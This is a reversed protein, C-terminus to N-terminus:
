KPTKIKKVWSSPDDAAMRIQLESCTQRENQETASEVVNVDNCDNAQTEGYVCESEGPSPLNGPIDTTMNVKVYPLLFQM